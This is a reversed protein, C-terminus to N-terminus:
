RGVWMEIATMVMIVGAIMCLFGGAQQIVRFAESPFSPITTVGMYLLFVM